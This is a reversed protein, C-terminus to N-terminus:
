DEESLYSRKRVYSTISKEGVSEALRKILRLENPKLKIFLLEDNQGFLMGRVYDSVYINKELALKDLTEKEQRTLKIRLECDRIPGIKRPRGGNYKVPKQYEYSERKRIGNKHIWYRITGLPINTEKSIDKITKDRTKYMDLVKERDNESYRKYM